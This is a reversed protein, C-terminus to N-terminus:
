APFENWLCEDLLRGASKKGVQFMHMAGTGQQCAMPAGVNHLSGDLHVFGSEVTCHRGYSDDLAEQDEYERAKRNSRYLRGHESEPMQSIPKWAGWQKFFFPVGAAECQGRLSRVWEPHMPRAQPGSEGGCIVWDIAPSNLSCECCTGRYGQSFCQSPDGHHCPLWASVDINGLMPEISVFRKVAPTSLLKSIDRSAEDQNCITAGLWVNEPWPLEDAWDPGTAASYLGRANGIRKTLLLWDLNPTERILRFLDIRWENPTENDFVDALSACFVRRRTPQLQASSCLPCAGANDGRWGCAACEHFDNAHINWKLPQKWNAASTRKRPQGAGWTVVRRRRDFDAEAYCHDCAPSIKTCGIWPNFTSDCWQIATTESM